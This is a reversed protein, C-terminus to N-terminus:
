DDFQEAESSEATEDKKSWFKNLFFGILLGIILREGLKKKTSDLNTSCNSLDNNVTALSTRCSALESEKGQLTQQATELSLSTENLSKKCTDYTAAVRGYSESVESWKSGFDLSYTLKALVEDQRKVVLNCSELLEQSVTKCQITRVFSIQRNVNQDSACNFFSSSGETRITINGASLVTGNTSNIINGQISVNMDTFMNVNKEEVQAYTSLGLCVLFIIYVISKLKM